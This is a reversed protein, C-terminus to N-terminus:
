KLIKRTKGYVVIFILSILSLVSITNAAFRIPTNAFIGEVRHAGGDVIVGIRGLYNEYNITTDKGDIKAYWGPFYFVPVEIYAQNEVDVNFSWKNSYIRYDSVTASGKKVVPSDPAKERPELATKPLYDLLAGKQQTEWLIGTLMENDTLNNYFQAPKFYGWNLAVAIAIILLGIILGKSKGLAYVIYGGLIASSFISLSLFRWPFQFYKLIEIREWIFTSKNHMMFISGLFLLLLLIVLIIDVKKRKAFALFTAPAVLWWLPWGIQFSITDNPGLFSAGYGWMRDLFLQKVTVFHARFDSEFRTLAETQVLSKEFFAPITFFASLGFALGLSFLVEKLGNGKNIYLCYGLWLLLAPIFLITMINHTTLFAALSLSFAILYKFGKLKVLRYGFFFVFPIITLAFAESLAGRVYIDLAKYPAFLYLAGAVLGAIGGWIDKVLFYMGVGGFVLAIFFLLKATTIYSFLYSAVGGLYYPLPGYYNFLPFGNGFGMDPVWRCPVQLDNFCKRMEFLRMIQLDDHHSFYGPVFLPWSILVGLLVLLIIHWYKHFYNKLM